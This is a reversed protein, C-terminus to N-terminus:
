PRPHHDFQYTMGLAAFPTREIARGRVYGEDKYGGWGLLGLGGHLHLEVEATAAVGAGYIDQDWFELEAGLRLRDSEFLDPARLIVGRNKFPRGIKLDLQFIRDEVVFYQNLYLEYGLPSPNFQTGWTWGFHETRIPMWAEKAEFTDSFFAQGQQVLGPDLATWALSLYLTERYQRVLAPDVEGNRVPQRGTNWEYVPLVSHVPDGRTNRWTDPDTAKAPFVGAYIPFFAENLLGHALEDAFAGGNRYFDLQVQSAVLGNVEFGGVSLLANDALSANAPMEVTTHPLLPMANHFIFSSDVQQARSWHGFEHPWLMTTYTFFASWGFGIVNGVKRPLHPAIGYLYADQTLRNLTPSAMSVTRLDYGPAYVFNYQRTPEFRSTDDDDPAGLATALLLLATIM